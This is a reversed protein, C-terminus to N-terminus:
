SGVNLTDEEKEPAHRRKKKPTVRLQPTPLAALALSLLREAAGEYADVLSRRWGNNLTCIDMGSPGVLSGETNAETTTKESSKPKNTAAGKEAGKKAGKEAGKEAAKEVAKELTRTVDKLGQKAGDKAAKATADALKKTEIRVQTEIIKIIAKSPSAQKEPVTRPKALLQAALTNCKAKLDRVEQANQEEIARLACTSSSTAPGATGESTVKLAKFHASSGGLRILEQTRTRTHTHIQTYKHTNTHIRTYEHAHIHKTHM